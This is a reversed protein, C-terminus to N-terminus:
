QFDKGAHGTFKDADCFYDRLMEVSRHRSQDMVKFISASAGAARTLFGVRLSHGAFAAPDFSAREAADKVVQAASEPTLMANVARRGRNIPRFIPGETVGASNLWARVAKVPCLKISRPIAIEQGAAEQDGRSPRTTVRFGDSTEALDAVQLAVLKSRRFAGAFGSALLAQDHKGRLTAPCTGLMKAIVATTTLSKKAPATDITRRIGRVVSKVAESDTPTEHGDLKHAFPIAAIRRAITSASVSRRAESSVFAAVIAPATPLLPQGHAPGNAQFSALDSRYARRTDAAKDAAPYGHAAVFDDSPIVVSHAPCATVASRM